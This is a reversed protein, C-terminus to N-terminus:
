RHGSATDPSEEADQGAPRRTRGQEHFWAVARHPSLFFRDAGIRDFLAARRFTDEVPSKTGAFLLTINRERLTDAVFGLVGLATTDLDNVSSMDVVVARTSERVAGQGDLLLDRLFDANAFSFSADIRIVLIDDDREAEPFRRLSRFSRTGPLKGLVAVNPRSIRYLIAVVSAAVGVLLGEHLGLTLTAALTVAALIADVFKIRVLSRWTTFDVLTLASVIIIAALSSIPLHEFAPTLFLLTALVIGAAVVNAMPTRVGAAEGVATRSLSVSVPLGRFMASGLNAAGLSILERNARIPYGHRGSYYRAVSIITVFQIFALTLATPLLEGLQGAEVAPISFAPLGRPVAGVTALGSSRFDFLWAAATSVVVVVLAGPARRSLRRFLVLIVIASAGVALALPDAAALVDVLDGFLTILPRGNTRFPVGALNGIQTAAIFLVAGTTFGTIVPTSLLNVVFGLRLLGFLVQLVGVMLALVLVLAVYDSTGPSELGSLGAAVIVMDIATVGLAVHRSTAALPYVLLPVLSAYLGHVAPVGALVAYAMAQPVLMVAVTVGGVADGAFQRRDYRPLWQLITLYRRFGGSNAPGVTM